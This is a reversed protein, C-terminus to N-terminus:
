NKLRHYSKVTIEETERVSQSYEVMLSGTSELIYKQTLKDILQNRMQGKM